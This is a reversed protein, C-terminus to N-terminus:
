VGNLYADLQAARHAATHNALVKARAAAGIQQRTQDDTERLIAEVHSSHRAVCIESDFAFLEDLGDWFDSIIPTGCAAAEFLRVSPSWGAVIMDARTVNLTWASANYFARHGAPPLHEIRAVNAPWAIEAPYQPGAVCFQYYPLAQAPRILLEDLTSQRDPSYTGLYNLDNEIKVNEPFYLQPDVSCYLARARPSGMQELKDLTPGGSFSLYLDYKRILDPALYEFDGRELKALTVPTDIDYFACQPATQCAWDGVNVGDFVYSGVITWDSVCLDAAFRNKLDNTDRYFELRCFDPAPLDRHAAYYAVDRELFLIEHGRAAFERLLARFTTAHGNGWSSSLSLGIVVIKM